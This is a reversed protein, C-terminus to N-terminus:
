QINEVVKEKGALLILLSKISDVEDLCIADTKQRTDQIIAMLREIIGEDTIYFETDIQRRDVRINTPIDVEEGRFTMRIHATWTGDLHQDQPIILYRLGVEHRVLPVLEDVIVSRGGDESSVTISSRTTRQEGGGFVYDILRSNENQIDNLTIRLYKDTDRYERVRLNLMDLLCEKSIGVDYLAIDIMSHRACAFTLDPRGIAEGIKSMHRAIDQVFLTRSGVTRHFCFVKRHTKRRSAKDGYKQLYPELLPHPKIRTVGRDDRCHRSRAKEFVIYGDGDYECEYLDAGTMGMTMFSIIFVDRAMNYLSGKVTTDPLAAIKRVQEVTLAFGQGGHVYKVARTYDDLNRKIVPIGDDFDNYIRRMEKFVHRICFVSMSAVSPHEALSLEYRRLLQMSMDRVSLSDGGILQVLYNYATRYYALNQDTHVEMWKRYFNLFDIDVDEEGRLIAAVTKTDLDYTDLRLTELRRQYKRMIKRCAAMLPGNGLKNNATLQIDTAYLETPIIITDHHHRVIISIRWVADSGRHVRKMRYTVDTIKEMDFRKKTGNM